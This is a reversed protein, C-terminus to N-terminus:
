HFPSPPTTAVACGVNGTTSNLNKAFSLVLQQIYITINCSAMQDSYGLATLINGDQKGTFGHLAEHFILGENAQNQGQSDGLISGPRFFTLLPTSPTKTEADTLANNPDAFYSQVTQDTWTGLFCLHWNTATAPLLEGQCFQSGSGDYFLPGHARLYQIFGSTTQGLPTFVLTQAVEGLTYGIGNVDHAV